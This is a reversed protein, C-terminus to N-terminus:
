WGFRRRMKCPGFGHRKVLGALCFMMVDIRPLLRWTASMLDSGRGAEFRFRHGGEEQFAHGAEDTDAILNKKV